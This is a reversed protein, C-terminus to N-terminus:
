KVPIEFDVKKETSLDEPIIQDLHFTLKDVKNIDIKKDGQPKFVLVGDSKADPAIDGTVLDTQTLPDVNLQMDGVMLQGQEPYWTIKQGSTNQYNLGVDIENPTIKVEHVNLKVYKFDQSFNPDIKKTPVAQAQATAQVNNKAGTSVDKPQPGCGVIGGLVVAASLGTALVKKM